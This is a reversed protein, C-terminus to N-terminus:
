RGESVCVLRTTLICIHGVKEVKDLKKSVTSSSLEAGRM